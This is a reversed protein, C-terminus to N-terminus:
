DKEAWWKRSYSNEVTRIVDCIFVSKCLEVKGGGGGGEDCFFAGQISSFQRGRTM